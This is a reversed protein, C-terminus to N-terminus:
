MILFRERMLRQFRPKWILDYALEKGPFMALAASRADAIMQSADDITLTSDQAIVQMVMNMMMQMRRILRQEELAEPTPLPKAPNPTVGTAGMDKQM